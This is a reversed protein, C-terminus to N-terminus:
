ESQTPQNKGFRSDLFNLIPRSVFLILFLAALIAGVIWFFGKFRLKRKAKRVQSEIDNLEYVRTEGALGPNAAHLVEEDMTSSVERKKKKQPSSSKLALPSLTALDTLTTRERSPLSRPQDESPEQPAKAESRELFGHILGIQERSPELFRVIMGKAGSFNESIKHVEGHMLLPQPTGELQLSLRLQTKPALPQAAQVLLGKLNMKAVLLLYDQESQLDTIKVKARLM